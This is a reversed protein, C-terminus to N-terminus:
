GWGPGGMMWLRGGERQKEGGKGDTRGASKFDVVMMVGKNKKGNTASTRCFRSEVCDWGPCDVALGRSLLPPHSSSYARWAVPREGARPWLGGPRRLLRQLRAISREFGM